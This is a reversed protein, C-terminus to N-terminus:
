IAEQQMQQASPIAGGNMKTALDAVAQTAQPIVSGGINTFTLLMNEATQVADDQIGTLDMMHTALDTISQATLGSVDHTSKLVANTQAMVQNAHEGESLADGIQDKLFEFGQQALDIAVMGAGIGLMNGLFEQLGGGADDAEKGVGALADEAQSADATVVVQLQAATIAM